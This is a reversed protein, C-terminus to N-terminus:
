DRAFNFQWSEGRESESLSEKGHGLADDGQWERGQDSPTQEARPESESLHADGWVHMGAGLPRLIQATPVVRPLGLFWLKGGWLISNPFCFPPTGTTAWHSLFGVLIWSSAPKIGWRAWHTLSRANGCAATYSASTAQNQHKQPSDHLSAAAVRVRSKALSCGCTVPTARFLFSFSPLSSPLFFPLFFVFLCTLVEPSFYTHNM